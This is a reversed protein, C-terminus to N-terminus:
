TGSTGITANGDSDVATVSHITLTPTNTDIVFMIDEAKIGYDVANTFFDEADVAGHAEASTYVWLNPGGSLSPVLLKLGSATFSM